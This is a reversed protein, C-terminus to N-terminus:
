YPNSYDVACGTFDIEQYRGDKMKIRRIGNEFVYEEVYESKVFKYTGKIDTVKVNGPIMDEITLGYPASGVGAIGEDFWQFSYSSKESSLFYLGDDFVKSTVVVCSGEIPNGEADIANETLEFGIYDLYNEGTIEVIVYEEGKEKGKDQNSLACSVFPICIVVALILATLKKM